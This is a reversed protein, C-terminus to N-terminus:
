YMKGAMVAKEIETLDWGVIAVFLNKTLRRLLWPDTPPILKWEDVEWLIFYDARMKKPMFQPPIIPVPAKLDYTQWRNVNPIEPFAQKIEIVESRKWRFRPVYRVDGNASIRCLCEKATATVIALKPHHNSHTGGKPILKYIDIIKRGAKVQNYVAALEKYIPDKSVKKAEVYEKWKATAEEKTLTMEDLQM